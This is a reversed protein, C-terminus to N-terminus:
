SMGQIPIIIERIDENSIAKFGAKSVGDIIEQESIVDESYKIEMKQTALNVNAEQVGNLKNMAKELNNVCSACHLGEINFNKNM